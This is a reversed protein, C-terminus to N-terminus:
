AKSSKSDNRSLLYTAMGFFPVFRHQPAAGHLLVSQWISYLGADVIFAFFVRDNNFMSLFYELRASVDGYEPRAIFAWVLSIVGVTLSTAGFLPAWGPLPQDPPPKGASPRKSMFWSEVSLPKEPEPAARLAMFPIYFVNTLFMIGLWWPIKNSVKDCKGETLIVPLTMLSWANMFNFVAEYVPNDPISPVLTLGLANLGINVYFFNFSLNLVQTITEPSTQLATEGPVDSGLLIVATYTAYFAWWAAAALPLRRLNAPDADRGLKRILPTMTALLNLSSSGPKVASEVLDRAQIIKGEENLTYFSCGRSFPFVIGEGCEVHWMIGVKRNDGSTADEIVFKLDSPVITRVKKLYEVIEQRGEFPDEYIMDHYSCDEALLGGITEIDGANYANYYKIIVEKADQSLKPTVTQASARSVFRNPVCLRLHSFHIGGAAPRQM